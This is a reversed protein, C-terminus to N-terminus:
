RSNACANRTASRSTGRSAGGWDHAVVFANEYGLAAILNAADDGLRDVQYDDVDPPKDSDGYGRQDPVIM